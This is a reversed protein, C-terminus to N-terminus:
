EGGQGRRTKAGWYRAIFMTGIFSLLIYIMAFDLLFSQGTFSAFVVSFITVKTTLLDVGLLRDWVTPGRFILILSPLFLIAIAILIYEM